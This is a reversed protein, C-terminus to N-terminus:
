LHWQRQNEEGRQLWPTKIEQDEILFFMKKINIKAEKEIWESM